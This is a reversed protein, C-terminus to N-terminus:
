GPQGTHHPLGPHHSLGPHGPRGSHNFHGTNHMNQRRKPMKQMNKVNRAYKAYRTFDLSFYNNKFAPYKQGKELATGCQLPHFLPPVLHQVLMSPLYSAWGKM